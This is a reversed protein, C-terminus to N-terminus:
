VDTAGSMVERHEFGLTAMNLFRNLYDWIELSKGKQCIKKFIAEVLLKEM